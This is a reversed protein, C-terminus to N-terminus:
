HVDQNGPISWIQCVVTYQMQLISKGKCQNITRLNIISNETNNELNIINSNENSKKFDQSLVYPNLNLNDTLFKYLKCMCYQIVYKCIIM